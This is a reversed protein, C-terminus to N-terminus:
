TSPSSKLLSIQVFVSIIIQKRNEEGMSNRFDKSNIKTLPCAMSAVPSKSSLVGQLEGEAIASLVESHVGLKAQM